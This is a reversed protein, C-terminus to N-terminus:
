NCMMRKIYLSSAFFMRLAAADSDPFSKTAGRRLTITPFNYSVTFSMCTCLM